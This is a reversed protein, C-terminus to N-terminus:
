RRQFRRIQPAGQRKVVTPIPLGGTCRKRGGVDCGTRRRSPDPEGLARLVKVLHCHRAKIGIDFPWGLGPLLRGPLAPAEEKTKGGPKMGRRKPL